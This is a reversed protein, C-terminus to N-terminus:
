LTLTTKEAFIADFFVQLETRFARITIEWRCSVVKFTNALITYKGSKKLYGLDSTFM